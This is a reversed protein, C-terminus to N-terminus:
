LGLSILNPSCTERLWAYMYKWKNELVFVPSFFSDIGTDERDQKDETNNVTTIPDQTRTVTPYALIL